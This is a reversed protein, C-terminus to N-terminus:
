FLQNPNPYWVREAPQDQGVSLFYAHIAAEMAAAGGFLMALQSGYARVSEIKAYMNEASLPRLRPQLNAAEKAALTAALTYLNEDDLSSRTFPYNPDSYPYDEYFIVQRGQQQLREAAAYTLQHDVHHGVALPAYILSDRSDAILTAVAQAIHDALILDTPHITGFIEEVSNYFWHGAAVDGRYICDPLDLYHYDCGLIAMAAADEARRTAVVDTPNHWAEHLSEAFPSLPADGAPSAACITIVLVDEGAQVQQHIAGGCSLSADDFHPSLYIQQYSKAM